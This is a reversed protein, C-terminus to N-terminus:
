WSLSSREAARGGATRSPEAKEPLVRKKERAAAGGNSGVRAGWRDRRSREAARGGATRSPKRRRPSCGKKRERAQAATAVLGPAGDIEGRRQVGGPQLGRGERGDGQDKRQRGYAVRRM